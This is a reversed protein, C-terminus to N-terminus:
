RALHVPLVDVGQYAHSAIFDVWYSNAAIQGRFDTLWTMNASAGNWTMPVVGVGASAGSTPTTSWNYYRSATFAAHLSM